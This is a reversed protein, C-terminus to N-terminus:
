VNRVNEHEKQLLGIREQLQYAAVRCRGGAVACPKHQGPLFPIRQGHPAENNQERQPGYRALYRDFIAFCQMIQWTKPFYNM